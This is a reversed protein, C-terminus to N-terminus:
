APTRSSTASTAPVPDSSTRKSASSSGAGTSAPEDASAPPLTDEERDAEVFVLEAIDLDMVTRVIREVSWDPHANRISTAVMTLLVPVRGRDLEDEILAFFDQIPLGSFRDILMLDKGVTTVHWRYFVGQYEFGDEAPRDGNTSM